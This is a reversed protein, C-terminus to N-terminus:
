RLADEVSEEIGVHDAAEHEPRMQAVLLDHTERAVRADAAFEREDDAALSLLDIMDAFIELEVPRAAEDEGPGDGIIPVVAAHQDIDFRLFQARLHSEDM